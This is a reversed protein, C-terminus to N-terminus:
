LYIKTFEFTQLSNIEANTSYTISKTLWLLALPLLEVLNLM